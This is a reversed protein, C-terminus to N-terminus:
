VSGEPESWVLAGQEEPCPELNPCTSVLIAYSKLVLDLLYSELKMIFRVWLGVVKYFLDHDSDPDIHSYLTLLKPWDM